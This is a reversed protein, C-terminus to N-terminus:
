SWGRIRAQLGISQEAQIAFRVPASSVCPRDPGLFRRRGARRGPGPLQRSWTMEGRCDGGGGSCTSLYSSCSAQSTGSAQWPWSRSAGLPWMTPMSICAASLRTLLGRVRGRPAKPVAVPQRPPDPRPARYRYLEPDRAKILIGWCHGSAARKGGNRRVYTMEAARVPDYQGETAGKVPQTPHKVACRVVRISFAIGFRERSSILASIASRDIKAIEISVAM